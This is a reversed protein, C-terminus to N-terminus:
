LCKDGCFIQSNSNLKSKKSEKQVAELLAEIIEIPYDYPYYDYNRFDVDDCVKKIFDEKFLGESELEICRRLFELFIKGNDICRHVIRAYSLYEQGLVEFNKFSLFKVLFGEYDGKGMGFRLLSSIIEFRIFPESCTSDGWRIGKEVYRRFGERDYERDYVVWKIHEKFTDTVVDFFDSYKQLWRVTGGSSVGRSRESASYGSTTTESSSKLLDAAEGFRGRFNDALERLLHEKYLSVDKQGLYDCMKELIKCLAIAGNEKKLVSTEPEANLLDNIIKLVEIRGYFDMEKPHERKGKISLKDVAEFFVVNQALNDSPNRLLIPFLYMAFQCIRPSNLVARLVAEEKEEEGIFLKVKKSEVKKSKREIEEMSRKFFMETQEIKKGIAERSNGDIEEISREEANYVGANERWSTSIFRSIKLGNILGEILLNREEEKRGKLMFLLSGELPYKDDSIPSFDILKGAELDDQHVESSQPFGCLQNIIWEMYEEVFLNYDGWGDGEPAVMEWVAQIIPLISIGSSQRKARAYIEWIKGQDYQIKFRYSRHTSKIVYQVFEIESPILQQMVKEKREKEDFRRRTEVSIKHKRYNLCELFSLNDPREPTDTLDKKLVRVEENMQGISLSQFKKFLEEAFLGYRELEVSMELLQWFEHPSPFAKLKYFNAILTKYAGQKMGLRGLRLLPSIMKFRRFKGLKKELEDLAVSLEEFWGAIGCGSDEFYDRVSSDWGERKQFSLGRKHIIPPPMEPSVELLEIVAGFSGKFNDALERLLYMKSRINFLFRHPSKQHDDFFFKRSPYQQDDSDGIQRWGLYGCMRELIECLAIAGNEKQLVSTEPEERLLHNILELVEIKGHFDMEEECPRDFQSHIERIFFLPELAKFFKLNNGLDDSLNRLLIPFLNTALQCIRQTKHFERRAEERIKESYPQGFSKPPSHRRYFSDDDLAAMMKDHVTQLNNFYRFGSMLEAILFKCEKEERGQMMFLLSGELPYKDDSQGSLSDGCLQNVIGTMYRDVAFGNDSEWRSSCHETRDCFMPLGLKWIGEIIPLVPIGGSQRKARACIEWIKDPNDQFCYGWSQSERMISEVFKKESPTLQGLAKEKQEKEDGRIWGQFVLQHLSEFLSNLRLNVAQLDISEIYSLERYFQPNDRQFSSGLAHHMNVLIQYKEIIDPWWSLYWGEKHVPCHLPDKFYTPFPRGIKFSRAHREYEGWRFPSQQGELNKISSQIKKLDPLVEEYLKLMKRLNKERQVEEEQRQKEMEQRQQEM